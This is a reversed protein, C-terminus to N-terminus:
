LKELLQTIPVNVGYIYYEEPLRDLYILFSNLIPYQNEMLVFYLFEITNVGFMNFLIIIHNLVLKENLEGSSVYRNFLKKLMYMRSIDENFSDVDLSDYYKACV